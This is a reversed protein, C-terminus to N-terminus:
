NYKRDSVVQLWQIFDSRVPEHCARWAASMREHWRKKLAALAPDDGIFGEPESGVARPELVPDAESADILEAEAIEGQQEQFTKPVEGEFPEFEIVTATKAAGSWGARAV